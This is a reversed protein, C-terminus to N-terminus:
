VRGGGRGQGGLSGQASLDLLGKFNGFEEVGHQPAPTPHPALGAWTQPNAPSPARQVRRGVGASCIMAGKAGRAEPMRSSSHSVAGLRAQVQTGGWGCVAKQLESRPSHEWGAWM